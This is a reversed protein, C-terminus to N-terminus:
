LMVLLGLKFIIRYKFIVLVVGLVVKVVGHQDVLLVFLKEMIKKGDYMFGNEIEQLCRHKRRITNCVLCIVSVFRNNGDILIEDSKHQFNIPNPVIKFALASAFDDTIKLSKKTEKYSEKVFYRQKRKPIHDNKIQEKKM